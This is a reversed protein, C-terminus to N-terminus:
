GKGSTECSSHSRQEFVKLLRLEAKGMFAGYLVLGAHQWAVSEHYLYKLRPRSMAVFRCDAGPIGGLSHPEGATDDSKFGEREGDGMEEAM